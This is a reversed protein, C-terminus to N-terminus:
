EEQTNEDRIRIGGDRIPLPIMSGNTVRINNHVCNPEPADVGETATREDDDNVKSSSYRATRFTNPFAVKGNVFIEDKGGIRRNRCAEKVYM